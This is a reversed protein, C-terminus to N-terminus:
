EDCLAGAMYITVGANSLLVRVSSTHHYCWLAGAMYMYITLGENTLLAPVILTYCGIKHVLPHSVDM